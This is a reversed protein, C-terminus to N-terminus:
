GECDFFLNNRHRNASRGVIAKLRLPQKNHCHYLDRDYSKLSALLQRRQHVERNRHLQEETPVDGFVDFGGEAPVTSSESSIRWKAVCQDDIGSTYLYHYDAGNASVEVHDVFSNHATYSRALFMEEDKSAQNCSEGCDISKTWAVHVDGNLSGMFLVNLSDSDGAYKHRGAFMSTIEPKLLNNNRPPQLQKKKWVLDNYLQYRCDISNPVNLRKWQVNAISELNVVITSTNVDWVIYDADTSHNLRINNSDVLQYYILLYTRDECEAFSMFYSAMSSVSGYQSYYTKEGQQCRVDTFWSYLKDPHVGRAVPKKKDKARSVFLSIFSPDNPISPDYRARESHSSNFSVALHEGGESFEINLVAARKEQKHKQVLNLTPVIYKEDNKGQNSKIIKTDLFILLGDSFGVVIIDGDRNFKACTPHAVYGLTKSAIIKNKETDWLFLNQDEGLTLLVGFRPHLSFFLRKHPQPGTLQSCHNRM